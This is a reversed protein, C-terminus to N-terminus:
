IQQNKLLNLLDAPSIKVQKIKLRKGMLLGLPFQDLFLSENIKQTSQGIFWNILNRQNFSKLETPKEGYNLTILQIRDPYDRAIIRLAATDETFGAQDFRWVYIYM